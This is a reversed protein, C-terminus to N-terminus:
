GRPKRRGEPPIIDPDSSGENGQQRSLVERLQTFLTNSIPEDFQVGREGEKKWVIHGFLEFEAVKLLIDQETQPLGTGLLRCGTPSLDALLAVRSQDVAYLSVPM